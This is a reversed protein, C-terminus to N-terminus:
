NKSLIRLHSQDWHVIIFSALSARSLRRVIVQIMKTIKPLRHESHELASIIRDKIKSKKPKVQVTHGSEKGFFDGFSAVLSGFFDGCIQLVLLGIDSCNQFSLLGVDPDKLFYFIYGYFSM